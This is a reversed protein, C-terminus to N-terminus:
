IIATSRSVTHVTLVSEEEYIFGSERKLQM